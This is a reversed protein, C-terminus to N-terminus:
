ADALLHDVFRRTLARLDDLTLEAAWTTRNTRPDTNWVRLQRLQNTGDDPFELNFHAVANRLYKILQRLDSVQKFNGTVRPVPWGQVELEELPTEPIQDFYEEKPFVLLGLMSNILQTAEYVKHGSQHLRDITALNQQTRRAFDRIVHDEDYRM